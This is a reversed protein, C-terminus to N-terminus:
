KKNRFFTDMESESKSLAETWWDIEIGDDLWGASYRFLYVLRSGDYMYTFLLYLAECVSLYVILVEM